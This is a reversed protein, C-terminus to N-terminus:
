EIHGKHDGDEWLDTADDGLEKDFKNVVGIFDITGTQTDYIMYIYPRNFYVERVYIEEPALMAGACSASTVAAAKTGIENIDIVATQEMKDVSLQADFGNSMDASDSFLDTVGLAKYIEALGIKNEIVVKPLLIRLEFKDAESEWYDTTDNLMADIAKNNLKSIVGEVTEGSEPLLGVFKYRIDNDDKNMYSKAIGYCGLEASEIYKTDEVDQKGDYIDSMFEAEYKNDTDSIFIGQTTNKFKTVWEADFACCNMAFVDVGDLDGPKLIDKIMGNTDKDVIGNIEDISDSNLIDLAANYVGTLKSNYDDLMADFYTETVRVHNSLKLTDDKMNLVNIIKKCYEDNIGLTDEIQKRTNGDSAEYIMATLTEASVPSFVINRDKDSAYISNFVKFYADSDNVTINAVPEVSSSPQNNSDNNSSNDAGCGTSTLVLAALASAWLHKNFKSSM